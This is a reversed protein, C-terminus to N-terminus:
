NNLPALSDAFPSVRRSSSQSPESSVACMTNMCTGDRTFGTCLKIALKFAIYYNLDKEMTKHM